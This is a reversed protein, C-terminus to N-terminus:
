RHQSPGRWNERARRQHPQAEENLVLGSFTTTGTALVQENATVTRPTTVGNLSGTAVVVLPYTSTIREFQSRRRGGTPQRTDSEFAYM